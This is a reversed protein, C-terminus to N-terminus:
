LNYTDLPHLANITKPMQRNKWGRSSVPAINKHRRGWVRASAITESLVRITNDARSLDPPPPPPPPAASPPPPAFCVAPIRDRQVSRQEPRAHDNSEDLDEGQYPFGGGLPSTNRGGRVIEVWMAGGNM